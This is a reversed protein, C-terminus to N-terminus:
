AVKVTLKVKYKRGPKTIEYEVRINNCNYVNKIMDYGLSTNDKTCYERNIGINLLFRDVKEEVENLSSAYFETNITNGSVTTTTMNNTFFMLSLVSIAVGAITFIIILLTFINGFLSIRLFYVLSLYLLSSIVDCIALSILGRKFERELMATVFGLIFPGLLPIWWVAVALPLEYKLKM